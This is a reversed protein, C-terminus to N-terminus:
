CIIWLRMICISQKLQKRHIHTHARATCEHAIPASDHSEITTLRVIWKNTKNTEYVVRPCSWKIQPPSASRLTGYQNGVVLLIFFFIPHPSFVNWKTDIEMKGDGSNRKRMLKSQHFDNSTFAILSRFHTADVDIGGVEVLSNRYTKRNM